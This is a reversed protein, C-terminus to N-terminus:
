LGFIRWNNKQTYRDASNKELDFELQSLEDFM